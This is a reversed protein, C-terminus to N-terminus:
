WATTSTTAWNMRCPAASSTSPAGKDHSLLLKSTKWCSPAHRKNAIIRGRRFCHARRKTRFAMHGALPTKRIRRCDLIAPPFGALLVDHDPFRAADVKTIDGNIAHGDRHNEATKTRLQGMRQYLHLARWDIRFTLRIGGIGAFLDIASNKGRRYVATGAAVTTALAPVLYPAPETERAEWRRM